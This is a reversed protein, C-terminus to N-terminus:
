LRRAHGFVVLLIRRQMRTENRRLSCFPAHPAARRRERALVSPPTNSFRRRTQGPICLSAETGASDGRAQGTSRPAATRSDIEAPAHYENALKRLAGHGELYYHLHICNRVGSVPFFHFSHASNFRRTLNLDSPSSGACAYISGPIYNLNFNLNFCIYIDLLVNRQTFQLHEFNRAIPELVHCFVQTRSGGRVGRDRGFGVECLSM